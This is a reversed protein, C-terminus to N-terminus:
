VKPLLIRTCTVEKGEFAGGSKRTKHNDLRALLNTLWLNLSVCLTM